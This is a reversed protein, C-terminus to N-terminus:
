NKNKDEQIKRLHLDVFHTMMRNLIPPFARLDFKVDCVLDNGNIKTQMKVGEYPIELLKSSTNRLSHIRIIVYIMDRGTKDLNNIKLILSRIEDETLEKNKLNVDVQSELLDYVPFFTEVPFSM